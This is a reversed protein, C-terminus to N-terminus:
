YMNPSQGVAEAVPKCDTVRVAPGDGQFLRLAAAFPGIQTNKLPKVKDVMITYFLTHNYNDFASSFGMGAVM